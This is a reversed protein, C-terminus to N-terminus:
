GARQRVLLRTEVPRIAYVSIHEGSLAEAFGGIGLSV